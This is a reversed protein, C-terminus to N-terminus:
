LFYVGSETWKCTCQETKLKDCQTLVRDCPQLATVVRSFVSTIGNYGARAKIDDAFLTM